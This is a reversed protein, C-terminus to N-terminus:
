QLPPGSALKSLPSTSPKTSPSYPSYLGPDAVFLSHVPSLAVADAGQGAAAEALQRVASADGIGGDGKRRLAYIQASVGWLRRGDGRQALTLCRPPAVAVTVERGALRLRHYGVQEIAPGVARQGRVVFRMPMVEGSELVLEGRGNAPWATAPLALKEGVTVTVLSPIAEKAGQLRQHSEAIESQTSGPYGLSSLITRVAGLDVRQADGSADTWDVALGAARALDFVAEDSM